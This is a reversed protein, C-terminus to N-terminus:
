MVAQSIIGTNVGVMGAQLASTVRGVRDADRTFFYAALGVDSNNALELVEEETKFPIVAAM